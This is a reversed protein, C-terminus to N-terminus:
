PLKPLCRSDSHTACDPPTEMGRLFNLFAMRVRMWEEAMDTEMGRLFNLFGTTHTTRVDTCPTEMGRLFNLFGM